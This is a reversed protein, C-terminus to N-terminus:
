TPSNPGLDVGDWLCQPRSNLIRALMTPCQMSMPTEHWLWHSLNHCRQALGVSSSSNQSKRTQYKWMNALNVMSHMEPQNGLLAIKFKLQGIVNSTNFYPAPSQSTKGFIIQWNSLEHKLTENKSLRFNITNSNNSIIVRNLKHFNTIRNRVHVLPM